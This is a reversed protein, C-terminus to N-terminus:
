KEDRLFGIRPKPKAEFVVMKKIEEVIQLIATDHGDVRTELEKFKDVLEKHLALAQKLRVFVRMIAINVMIARKSRLVSSLM